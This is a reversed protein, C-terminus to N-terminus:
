GIEGGKRRQRAAVLLLVAGLPLALVNVVAMSAALRSPGFLYDNMIGIMLPDLTMSVLGLALYYTATIRGRLRNPIIEQISSLSAGSPMHSCFAQLGFCALSLWANSVVLASVAPITIVAVAIAAAL